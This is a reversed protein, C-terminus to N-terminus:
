SCTAMDLILKTLLSQGSVNGEPCRILGTVVSSCMWGLAVHRAVVFHCSGSSKASCSLGKYYLRATVGGYLFSILKDGPDTSPNKVFCSYVLLHM